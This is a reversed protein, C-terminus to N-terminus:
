EAPKDDAKQQQEIPPLTDTTRAKAEDDGMVNRMAELSHQLKRQV